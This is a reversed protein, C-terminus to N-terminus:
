PRSPHQQLRQWAALAPSYAPNLHLTERYQVSAEAPLNEGELAQGLLFHAVPWQPQRQVLAHAYQRAQAFSQLGLYAAALTARAHDSGEYDEHWDAELARGLREVAEDLRGARLAATGLHAQPPAFHPYLEQARGAWAALRGDDGLILATRAAEALFWANVPDLALATDWEAFAAAAPAEQRRAQESLTRALNAHHYADAPVLYIARDLAQRAQSLERAHDAATAAQAALRGAAGALQVWYRDDGGDLAIAQQYLRRADGASRELLRDGDRCACSATLPRVVEILLVAAAATAVAAYWGWRGPHPQTARDPELRGPSLPVPASAAVSLLGACVAFLSGCPVMTFGFMVAVAFAAACAIVAAVVPREDAAAHRWARSAARVLGFLLLALAAAGVLGQTALVHLVLNHARAPTVNWEAEALGAPRHRGFVLRFTDPGWGVAPREGFLRWAAQWVHRRGSSDELRRVREVLGTRFRAGAAGPWALVAAAVAALLVAGLLWTRPRVGGSRAWLLILLAVGVGAALWAGRSLSLLIATVGVGAAACVVALTKWRRGSAAERALGALLPLAMAQYAALHIAHGLTGFPRHHGAFHPISEWAVPDWGAAQVVAYGAAVAAAVLAAGLLRRGEALQSCGARTALFLTLYGLLTRLGAHSDPAGRWSTRPSISAWTSLAASAVLLAFGLTVLDIRGRLARLLGAPGRAALGLALLLVATVTLLAAKNEEFAEATWTCFLLPCVLLHCAVIGRALVAPRPWAWRQTAASPLRRMKASTKQRYSAATTM